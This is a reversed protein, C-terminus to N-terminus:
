GLTWDFGLPAIAPEIGRGIRGVFSAAMAERQAAAERAAAVAQDLGEAPPAARVAAEARDSAAAVTAADPGPWRTGAWLLISFLFIVTGARVLFAWAGAGSRRLVQRVQPPRYAPMPLIFPASPAHRGFRRVALAVGAAVVIGLLYCGMYVAAKTWAPQGACVFGILLLYVPLRASCSMLPAAMITALRERPSAITRAALIGPIACAFSSLLPVFSRGHLGVRSLVRDMVVAARALYGSDELVALLAMLIAIQPVFVAVAGVGAIIGGCVLDQLLGPAMAAAVAGSLAEFWGEVQGILPDALWFVALFILSMVALFVAIGAIPHLLVADIREAASAGPAAGHVGRAALARALTWRAAIAADDGGAPAAIAAPRARPIAARLDEIGVRRRGDVAVVPVGLAAALGAADVRRGEAEAADRMTMAVVMPLGTAAVQLVLTLGRAADTSDLAVVVAAPRDALAKATCAEDPTIPDLSAVGPLDILECAGEGVRCRGSAAEVTSGPYNVVKHQLGTLANFLTTKGCNAPGVLAVTAPHWPPADAPEADGAPAVEPEATAGATVQVREAEVRRLSIRGGAVRVILPEGFPARRELRIGSGPMLGLELLRRRVADAGLVTTITADAGPELDALTLSM